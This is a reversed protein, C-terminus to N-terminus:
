KEESEKDAWKCEIDKKADEESIRVTRSKHNRSECFITGDVLNYYRCDKCIMKGESELCLDLNGM